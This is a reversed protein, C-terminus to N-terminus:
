WPLEEEGHFFKGSPGDDPLLALRIATKAGDAPTLPAEEGGMRTRVWGPHCANIKIPTEALIRAQCVMLMNLAAKSARYAPAIGSQQSTATLSGMQSSQYVVRPSSSNRLLPLFAETLKYPAITNIAFSEQLIDLTKADRDLYVGANNILIDLRGFKEEIFRVADRIDADSTIDLKIPIVHMTDTAIKSAAHEADPLRRAALLITIGQQALQRAIEFGIGRNAGTILAIKENM